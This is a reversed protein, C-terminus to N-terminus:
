YVGKNGLQQKKQNMRERYAGSYFDNMDNDMNTIKNKFDNSMPLYRKNRTLGSEQSTLSESGNTQNGWVNRSGGGYSPIYGNEFDKDRVGSLNQSNFDGYTKEHYREANNARDRQNFALRGGSPSIRTINGRIMNSNHGGNDYNNEEYDYKTGYKEHFADNSKNVLNADYGKGQNQKDQVRMMNSKWSRPTNSAKISASDQEPTRGNWEYEKLIRKVSEKIVKHLQNETLKIKNKM